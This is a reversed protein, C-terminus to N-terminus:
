WGREPCLGLPPRLESGAARVQASDVHYQAAVAGIALQVGAQAAVLRALAAAAAAEGLLAGDVQGVARWWAALCRLLLHPGRAPLEVRWLVAAVPDLDARSPPLAAARTRVRWWDHALHGSLRAGADVHGSVVEAVRVAGPRGHGGEWRLSYPYSGHSGHLWGVTVHLATDPDPSTGADLGGLLADPAVGVALAPGRPGWVRLAAEAPSEPVVLRGLKRDEAAVGEWFRAALRNGDAASRQPDSETAPTGRTAAPRPPRGAPRRPPARHVPVPQAPGTTAEAPPAAAPRPLPVPVPPPMTTTMTTTPLCRACGLRQKGAVLPADAGCHPCRVPAVTHLPLLWRLCFPYERRGRRITVPVSATPVLLEHVRYWRTSLSGRFKEEVEALRREREGRIADARADLVAHRDTPAAARRRALADLAARYYDQVRTLEAARAGRSQRALAALREGARQQLQDQAARAAASRDVTPVRHALVQSPAMATLATTLAAPLPLGTDADVWVEQREQFRDDLTLHYTVLAGVHLVPAYSTSPPQDAPDIRGHDVPVQERLRAVLAEASAPPGTPWALPYRGVDGRDLVRETARELVPHGPALLLAGDERAVEPDATVTVEEPLEFAERLPPPLLVVAADVTQEHLAGEAEAARLWFGLAPDATV